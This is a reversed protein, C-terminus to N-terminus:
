LGAQGDVGYCPPQPRLDVEEYITRDQVVNIGDKRLDLIKRFRTNLFYIQLNFSWRQMDQYFDFLYPNGDADEYQAQFGLYKSLQTALTTKGSGINGAIAIHM